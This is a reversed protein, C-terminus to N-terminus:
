EHPPPGNPETPLREHRRSRRTGGGGRARPRPRKTGCLSHINTPTSPTAHHAPAADSTAATTTTTTTVVDTCTQSPPPVDVAATGVAVGSDEDRVADVDSPLRFAVARANRPTGDDLWGEFFVTLPAGVQAPASAYAARAEVLSCVPVVGFTPGGPQTECEWVVGGHAAQKFGVVRFERTDGNKRKRLSLSRQGCAYAGDPARWMVGEFGQRLARTFAADWADASEVHTTTVLRVHALPAAFAAWAAELVALRAAYPRTPDVFDYVWYELRADDRRVAAQIGQLSMGHVYLEGDLPAGVARLVDAVRALEARLTSCGGPMPKQNRSTFTGDAYVARLGDLKPQVYAPFTPPWDKAAVALM